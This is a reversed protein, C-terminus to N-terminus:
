FWVYFFAGQCPQNKPRQGPRWELPVPGKEQAPWNNGAISARLRLCNKWNVVPPGRALFYLQTEADNRIINTARM